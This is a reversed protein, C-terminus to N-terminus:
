VIFARSVVHVWSLGSAFFPQRCSDGAGLFIQRWCWTRKVESWATDVAEWGRGKEVGRRSLSLSGEKAQIM